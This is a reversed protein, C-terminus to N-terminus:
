LMHWKWCFFCKGPYPIVKEGLTIERDADVANIAFVLLYFTGDSSRTCNDFSKGLEAVPQCQQM